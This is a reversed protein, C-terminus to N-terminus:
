ILDNDECFRAIGDRYAKMFTEPNNKILEAMEENVLLKFFPEKARHKRRDNQAILMDTMLKDLEAKTM